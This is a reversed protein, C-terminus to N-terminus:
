EGDPEWSADTGPSTTAERQLTVLRPAVVLWPAGKPAQDWLHWTLLVFCIMCTPHEPGQPQNPPIMNRTAIIRTISNPQQMNMSNRCCGKRTTNAQFLLVCSLCWREDRVELFLCCDPLSKHRTRPICSNAWGWCSLLWSEASLRHGCLALRLNM